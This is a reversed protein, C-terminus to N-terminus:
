LPLEIQDNTGNYDIDGEAKALFIAVSPNNILNNYSKSADITYVYPINSLLSFILGFQKIIQGPTNSSQMIKFNHLDNWLMRLHEIPIKVKPNSGKVRTFILFNEDIGNFRYRYKKTLTEFYKGALDKLDDLLVDFPIADEVPLLHEPIFKNKETKLHIFIPIPLDKLHKEMLPRVVSDWSLGGHGTGLQPFSISSINMKEYTEVFKILGEEVYEVKSPSRWNIKTPFNLIKRDTSNYIWLKGVTLKKDKCLKRYQKYMDPYRKKFELAIGKGMAGVVNITNVLTQAPSIWISSSLYTIM